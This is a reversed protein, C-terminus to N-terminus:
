GVWVKFSYVSDGDFEIGIREFGFGLGDFLFM